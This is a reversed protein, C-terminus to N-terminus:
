GNKFAKQIEAAMTEELVALAEDKTADFAPRVFPHPQVRDVRPRKSEKTRPRTAHGDEVFRAVFDVNKNPGIEVYDQDTTANADKAIHVNTKFGQSLEGPKLKGGAYEGAQFPARVKIAAEVVKGMAGLSKRLAKKRTEGPLAQLTNLLDDYESAM